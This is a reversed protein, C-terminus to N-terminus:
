NLLRCVAGAVFCMFTNVSRRRSSGLKSRGSLLQSIEVVARALFVAGSEAPYFYICLITVFRMSFLVSGGRFYIFSAATSMESLNPM